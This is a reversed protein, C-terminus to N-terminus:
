GDHGQQQSRPNTGGRGVGRSSHGPTLVGRVGGGEQQSRPNTDGKGRGEAATHRSHGRTLVGREAGPQSGVGGAM